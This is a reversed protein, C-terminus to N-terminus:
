LMILILWIDMIWVLLFCLVLFLFLSTTVPITTKNDTFCSTGSALGPGVGLSSNLNYTKWWSKQYTTLLFLVPSPSTKAFGSKKWPHMVWKVRGHFDTDLSPDTHTHTHESEWCLTSDSPMVWNKGLSKGQLALHSSSLLFGTLSGLRLPRAHSNLLWSLVPTHAHRLM